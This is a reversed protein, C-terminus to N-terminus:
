PTLDTTNEVWSLVSTSGGATDKGTVTVSLVYVKDATADAAPPDPLEKGPASPSPRLPKTAPM